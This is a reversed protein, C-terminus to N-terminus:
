TPDGPTTNDATPTVNGTEFPDDNNDDYWSAPPQNEPKEAWERIQADTPKAATPTALAAVAVEAMDREQIGEEYAITKLARRLRDAEARAADREAETRLLSVLVSDKDKRIAAVLAMADNIAKPYDPM